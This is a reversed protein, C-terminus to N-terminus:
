AWTSISLDPKLSACRVKAKGSHQFKFFHNEWAEKDGELIKVTRAAAGEYDGNDCLYNLYMHGIASYTHQDHKLKGKSKQVVTM